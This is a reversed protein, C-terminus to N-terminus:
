RPAVHDLLAQGTGQEIGFLDIATVSPTLGSDDVYLYVYVLRVTRDGFRILAQPHGAADSALILQREPLAAIKFSFVDDAGVRAVSTVGYALLREVM